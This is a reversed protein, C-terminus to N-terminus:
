AEAKEDELALEILKECVDGFQMGVARAADPILSTDTMGPLTNTELAWCNGEADLMIDTRSIGWCGLVAHAAVAMGQAQEAAEASIPAPCLHTSGGAAYKAHYNYFEDNNSVIQIVPFAVPDDSGMVGVTLEIGDIFQEVMAEDDVALATALAAPLDAEDRVITMGLSSGETVPKVVCPIGCTDAIERRDAEDLVDNKGVIVSAAVRLGAREYLEKTKGKNIALANALIGSGTYPIKLTELFGQVTGDEGGKGHLALFAVDFPEEILKKLDDRSAPDILTVSFGKEELARACCAGSNLSVEREGSTGGYLVAVSYDKPNGSYAM